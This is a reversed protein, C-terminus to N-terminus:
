FFFAYTIIKILNILLNAVNVLYVNKNYQTCWLIDCPSNQINCWTNNLCIGRGWSLENVM